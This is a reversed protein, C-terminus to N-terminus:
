PACGSNVLTYHSNHIISAFTNTPQGQGEGFGTGGSFDAATVGAHQSPVWPTGDVNSTSMSAIRAPPLTQEDGMDSFHYQVRLHCNVPYIFRDIQSNGNAESFRGDDPTNPQGQM